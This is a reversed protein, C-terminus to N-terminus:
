HALNLITKDTIRAEASTNQATFTTHFGHNESKILQTQEIVM